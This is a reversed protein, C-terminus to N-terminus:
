ATAAAKADSKERKEARAKTRAAGDTQQRLVEARALAIEDMGGSARAVMWQMMSSLFLEKLYAFSFGETLRVLADLAAGSLRMEVRLRANWAAVFRAREAPAPLAFHYKRDFRSPRDLIAPDLKEPHNTTALVVLGTNTEFGDLENLFFSRNDDDILSDLDELVLVCPAGRRARAFIGRIRGHETGYEGELSKVYLCPRGSANIMAKVAHTKGNGPPGYLMVGRKWPVGYSEYMERAAFFAPLEREIEARLTEPLVLNDFTASKISGYLEASKRWYGDEFVLIEGRVEACWDCVARFFEEASAREDAVIWYHRMWCGGETFHMVLVDFLLGRWLVNLWANVPERKLPRTPGDWGTLTQAHTRTEVVVECLGARAYEDLDFSGDEGELVARGPFLEALRRSVHYSTLDCPNALADSFFDDM